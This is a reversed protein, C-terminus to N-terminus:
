KCFLKRTTMDAGGPRGPAPPAWYGPLSPDLTVFFSGLNEKCSNRVWFYRANDAAQAASRDGKKSRAYFAYIVVSGNQKAVTNYYTEGEDNNTEQVWDGKANAPDGEIPPSDWLYATEPKYGWEAKASTNKCYNTALGHVGSGEPIAAWPAM